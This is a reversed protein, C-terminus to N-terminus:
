GTTPEGPASEEAGPSTQEGPVPPGAPMQGPPPQLIYKEVDRKGFASLLNLYLMEMNVPVGAQVASISLNFLMAADNKVAGTDKFTTSEEIVRISTIQSLAYLIAMEQPNAPKAFQIMMWIMTEAIENIFEEYALRCQNARAGSLNNTTAVETAFKAGSDYVGRQAATVATAADLAEQQLKYAEGLMPSPQEAAVRRIAVDFKGGQVDIFGQQRGRELSRRSKESFVSTNFLNIPGGHIAFNNIADGLATLQIQQKTALDFDGLDHERDPSLYGRLFIFPPKGYFNKGKDIVNNGYIVAETTDDWYLTLEIASTKRVDTLASGAFDSEDPFLEAYKPYRERAEDRPMRIKCSAFRLQKWNIVHPDPAFDSKRVHEFQAGKDDDHYYRVIGMGGVFTNTLAKKCLRNLDVLRWATKITERAITDQDEDGLEISWDPIGISISDVKTYINTQLHSIDGVGQSDMMDSDPDDPSATTYDDFYAASSDRFRRCASKYKEAQGKYDTFSATARAKIIDNLTLQSQQSAM